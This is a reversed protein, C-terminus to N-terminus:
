DPCREQANPLAILCSRRVQGNLIELREFLQQLLNLQKIPDAHLIQKLNDSTTNSAKIFIGEKKGNRASITQM